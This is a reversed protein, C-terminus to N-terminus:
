KNDKFLRCVFDRLGIRWSSWRTFRGDHAEYYYGDMLEELGAERMLRRDNLYYPFHDEQPTASCFIVKYDRAVKEPDKLAQEWPRGKANTYSEHEFISTLFGMNGFVEPHGFGIDCAQLAGLSLGGIARYFRDDIVRYNANMFPIIDKLLIDETIGDTKEWKRDPSDTGYTGMDNLCVCIFPECKGEAIMNDFIHNANARSFWTTENDSGGHLLYVTPYDRNSKNYGPPTYIMIREERGTVSSHFLQSSLAGHPVDYIYSFALDEDPFELYNQIRNSGFGVPLYPWIVMTGDIFVKLSRSGTHSRDYRIIFTFIGEEDKVGYVPEDEWDCYGEPAIKGFQVVIKVERAEPAGIRIKINGDDLYEVAKFASSPLYKKDPYYNYSLLQGTFAQNDTIKRTM